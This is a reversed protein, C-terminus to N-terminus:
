SVVPILSDQGICLHCVRTSTFGTKLAFAKSLHSKSAHMSLRRLYIRLKLWSIKCTLRLHSLKLNM